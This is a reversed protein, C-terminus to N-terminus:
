TVNFVQAAMDTPLIVTPYWFDTKIHKGTDRFLFLVPRQRQHALAVEDGSAAGTTMRPKRREMQRYFLSGRGEYQSAIALLIKGLTEPDWNGADEESYPVLKMLQVFTEIPIDIFRGQHLSGDFAKKLAAEVKKNRALVAPELAPALPYVQQGPEYGSLSGSDLVNPRTARLSLVTQVPVRSKPDTTSLLKRLRREADHIGHFRFALSEPLFVRTFPMLSKRYGFMRAHQLVTDMQSIKARRLYYTVLLNEITLGRGLINGGVIFNLQPGFEVVSNASNVIPIERHPLRRRVMERIDAFTPPEPLTRKLEEYAWGLRIGPEGPIDDHHINDSVEGLFRRILDAVKDHEPTKHSTHCLFNQGQVRSVPALIAQASASVLFFSIAQKLGLPAESVGGQIATSEDEDVFVLPPRGGEDVQEQDFFAEGGTYGEGPELLKTFSPRLPHDSNQLLLAYPTATVQLFVHHRLRERVSEAEEWPADNRVTRRHITSGVQPANPRQAARAATTTDLTAQDAEDDLILSPYDGADVKQLFEVLTALHAQNKQCVLVLGHDRIQKKIHDVDPQWCEIATSDKVLPGALAAFRKATQQVLKLYDSTLVVVVRFGDDLAAACFAIMAVTKGSQVRGYLLGTPCRGGLPAGSTARASGRAGVEDGAVKETYTQLVQELLDLADARIKVLVAAPMPSAGLGLSLNELTGTLCPGDTVMEVVGGGLLNASGRPTQPVVTV